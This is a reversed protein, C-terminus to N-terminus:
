EFNLFCPTSVAIQLLVMWSSPFLRRKAQMTPKRANYALMEFMADSGNLAGEHVLQIVQSHFVMLLVVDGDCTHGHKLCKQIVQRSRSPTQPQSRVEFSLHVPQM